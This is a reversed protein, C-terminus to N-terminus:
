ENSVPANLWALTYEYEQPFKEEYKSLIAEIDNDDPVRFENHIVHCLFKAFDQVDLSQLYELNTIVKKSKM